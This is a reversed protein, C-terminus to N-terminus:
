LDGPYSWIYWNLVISGEKHNGNRLGLYRAKSDLPEQGSLAEKAIM